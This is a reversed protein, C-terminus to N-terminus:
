RYLLRNMCLVRTPQTEKNEATPREPSVTAPESIDGDNMLFYICGSLYSALVILLPIAIILGIVKKTKM